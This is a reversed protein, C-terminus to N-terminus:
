KGKSVEADRSHRLTIYVWWRFRLPLIGLEIDADSSRRDFNWPERLGCEFYRYIGDWKRGVANRISVKNFSLSNFRFSPVAQTTGNPSRTAPIVHANRPSRNVNFSQTYISLPFVRIPLTLLM